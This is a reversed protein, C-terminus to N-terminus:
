PRPGPRRSTPLPPLRYAWYGPREPDLAYVVTGPRVPLEHPTENLGVYHWGPLPDKPEVHRPTANWLMAALVILVAVMPILLENMFNVKRSSRTM